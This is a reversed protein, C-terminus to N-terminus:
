RAARLTVGRYWATCDAGPATLTIEVRKLPRDPCLVKANLQPGHDYQGFYASQEPMRGGGVYVGYVNMALRANMWGAATSGMKARCWGSLILPEPRSQSLAVVRRPWRDAGGDVRLWARGGASVGPEIVAGALDWEGRGNAFDGDGTLDPANPEALVEEFRVLPVSAIPVVRENITLRAASGNNRNVVLGLGDDTWLAITELTERLNSEQASFPLAVVFIRVATALMAGM